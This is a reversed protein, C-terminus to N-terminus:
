AGGAPDDLQTAHSAHDSDRSDARQDDGGPILGTAARGRSRKWRSRLRDAACGEVASRHGARPKTARNPQWSRSRASGRARLVCRSGRQSPKAYAAGRRQSDDGRGQKRRPRLSPRRADSASCPRRRPRQPAHGAPHTNVPARAAVFIRARPCRPSKERSQGSYAGIALGSGQRDVIDRASMRRASAGSRAVRPRLRLDGDPKNAPGKPAPGVRSRSDTTESSPDPHWEGERSSPGTGTRV